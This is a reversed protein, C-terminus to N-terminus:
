RVPLRGPYNCLSNDVKLHVVQRQEYVDCQSKAVGKRPAQQGAPEAQWGNHAIQNRAHCETGECGADAPILFGDPL